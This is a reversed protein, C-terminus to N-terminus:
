DNIKFNIPLGFIVDVPQLRQKGPIMKPLKEIVRQAEAKLKPHSTRAGMFIVEGTRSVKFQTFIKHQGELGLESALQTDFHKGIFKFLKRSMCAKRNDNDKYKECGPFIPVDQVIDFPLEKPDENIITDLEKLVADPDFDTKPKEFLPKDPTETNDDVQKFQDTPDKQKTQSVPELQKEPLKVVPMEEFFMVKTKVKEDKIPKTYSKWEVSILLLVLVISLGIQFYLIRNTNLNKNPNKKVQM